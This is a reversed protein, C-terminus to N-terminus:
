DYLQENNLMINKNFYELMVICYIYYLIIYIINYKIYLNYTPLYM